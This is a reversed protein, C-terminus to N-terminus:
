KVIIKHLATTDGEIQILYLGPVMNMQLPSIDGHAIDALVEDGGVAYVRISRGDAGYITVYGGQKVLGPSIRMSALGQIASTADHYYTRSFHLPPLFALSSDDIDMRNIFARLAPAYDLTLMQRRCSDALVADLTGVLFRDDGLVDALLGDARGTISGTCLNYIANKDQKYREDRMGLLLGAHPYVDGSNFSSANFSQWEINSIHFCLSKGVLREIGKQLNMGNSLLQTFDVSFDMSVPTGDAWEIDLVSLPVADSAAYSDVRVLQGDDDYTFSQRYGSDEERTIGLLSIAAFVLGILRVRM